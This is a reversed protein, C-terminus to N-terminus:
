YSAQLANGPIVDGDARALLNFLVFLNVTQPIFHVSGDVYVANAGAPHFSYIGFQNSCNLPCPGPSTQGDYTYTRM